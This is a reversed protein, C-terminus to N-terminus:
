YASISKIISSEDVTAFISFQDIDIDREIDGNEYIIFDDRKLDLDSTAFRKCLDDTLQSFYYGIVNKNIVIFEKRCCISDVIGDHLTIEFNGDNSVYHGSNLDSNEENFDCDLRNNKDFDKIDSAHRQFFYGGVKIEPIWWQEDDAVVMSREKKKDNLM